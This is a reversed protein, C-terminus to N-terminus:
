LCEGFRRSPYYVFGPLSTFEDMRGTLLPLALRELWTTCNCDGDGNPFGYSYKSGKREAALKRQFVRFGPDPLIADFTRVTLGQAEAAAFVHTDDTVVGPFAEGNRLREMVQWTPLTGMDPKFGYIVKDSDTSVGTHGSYLLCEVPSPGPGRGNKADELAKRVRRGFSSRDGLFTHVTVIRCQPVAASM